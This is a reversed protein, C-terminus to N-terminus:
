VSNAGVSVPKHAYKDRISNSYAGDWYIQIQPLNLWIISREQQSRIIALLCAQAHYFFKELLPHCPCSACPWLSGRAMPWGKSKYWLHTYTKAKFIINFTSSYSMNLTLSHVLTCTRMGPQCVIEALCSTVICMTMILFFHQASQWWSLSHRHWWHLWICAPACPCNVTCYLLIEACGMEACINVCRHYLHSNSIYRKSFHCKM